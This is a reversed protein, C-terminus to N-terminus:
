SKPDLNLPKLNLRIPVSTEAAGIRKLKLVLGASQYQPKRNGGRPGPEEALISCSFLPKFAQVQIQSIHLPESSPEYKLSM